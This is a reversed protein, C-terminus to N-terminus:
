DYTVHLHANRTTPKPVSTQSRWIRPKRFAIYHDGIRLTIMKRASSKSRYKIQNIDLVPSPTQHLVQEARLYQLSREKEFFLGLMAVWDVTIEMRRSSTWTLPLEMDQYMNWVQVGVTRIPSVFASNIRIGGGRAQKWQKRCVKYYKHTAKRRNEPSLVYTDPSSDFSFVALKRPKTDQLTTRYRSNRSKPSELRSFKFYLELRDMPCYTNDIPEDRNFFYAGLDSEDSSLSDWPHIDLMADDVSQLPNPIPVPGDPINDVVEGSVSYRGFDYLIQTHRIHVSEFIDEVWIKFQRSVLRLYWLFILDQAHNLHREPDGEYVHFVHGLIKERLETIAFVRQRPSERGNCSAM